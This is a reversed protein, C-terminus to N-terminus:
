QRDGPLALSASASSHIHPFRALLKKQLSLWGETGNDCSALLRCGGPLVIKREAPSSGIIWVEAAGSLCPVTGTPRRFGVEGSFADPWIDHLPRRLFMQM